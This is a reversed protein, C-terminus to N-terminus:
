GGAFAIGFFNNVAHAVIPAVLGGSRRRLVVFIVGFLFYAPFGIPIGHVLMFALSTVVLSVRTGALADLARLMRGRFLFEEAVPVLLAGWALLVLPNPVLARLQAAADPLEIGLARLGLGYGAGILLIGGGTLAGLVVDRFRLALWSPVIGRERVLVYVLVAAHLGLLGTRVWGLSVAVIWPLAVILLWATEEVLFRAAGKRGTLGREGSEV